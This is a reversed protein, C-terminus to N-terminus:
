NLNLTKTLSCFCLNMVLIQGEALKEKVVVTFKGVHLEENPITQAQPSQVQQVVQGLTQGFQNFFSSM